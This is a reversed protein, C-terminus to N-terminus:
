TVSGLDIGEDAILQMIGGRISWAISRDANVLGTEITASVPNGKRDKVNGAVIQQNLEVLKLSDMLQLGSHTVPCRLLVLVSDERPKM